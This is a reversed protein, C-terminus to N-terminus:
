ADHVFSIDKFKKFQLQGCRLMIMVTGKLHRERFDEITCDDMDVFCRVRWIDADFSIYPRNQERDNWCIGLINHLRAKM